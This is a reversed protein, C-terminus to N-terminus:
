CFPPSQKLLELLVPFSIREWTIPIGEKWQTLREEIAESKWNRITTSVWEKENDTKFGWPLLSTLWIHIMSAWHHLMHIVLVTKYGNVTALLCFTLIRAGTLVFICPSHFSLFVFCFIVLCSIESFNLHQLTNRHPVDDLSASRLVPAPLADAM